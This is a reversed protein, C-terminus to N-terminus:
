AEQVELSLSRMPDSDTSGGFALRVRLRRVRGGKVVCVEFLPRTRNRGSIVHQSLTGGFFCLGVGFIMELLHIPLIKYVQTM